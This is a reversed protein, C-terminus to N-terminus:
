KESIDYVRFRLTPTELRDDTETIGNRVCSVQEAERIRVMERVHRKRGVSLGEKVMGSATEWVTPEDDIENTRRLDWSDGKKDKCYHTHTYMKRVIRFRILSDHIQIKKKKSESKNIYLLM